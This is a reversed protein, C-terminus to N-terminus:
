RFGVLVRFLIPCVLYVCKVSWSVEFCSEGQARPTRRCGEEEVRSKWAARGGQEVARKGGEELRSSLGVCTCSHRKVIRGIGRVYAQARACVCVCVRPNRLVLLYPRLQLLPHAAKALQM